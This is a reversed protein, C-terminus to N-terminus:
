EKGNHNIVPYQSSDGTSYLLVKNNKWGRYFLEGRSIGFEQDMGSGGGEEQCGRDKRHRHTQKQKMSLNTQAMNSIECILSVHYKDKEKQSVESLIIKELDMWAAAFPMIESKKHTHLIGSHIHLM